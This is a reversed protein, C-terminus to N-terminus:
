GLQLLQRVEEISRCEGGLHIVAHCNPCVPRLDAVPHPEYEEGIESLPTVHHVHIFGEALPGYVARFNFGCVMCTPGYHDICLRRAIPNREYANITVQCAAGEVLNGSSPLEEALPVVPGAQGRLIAEEVYHPRQPASDEAIGTPRPVQKLGAIYFVSKFDAYDIKDAARWTAPRHVAEALLAARDVEDSRKVDRLEGRYYRDEGTIKILITTPFSFKKKNVAVRDLWIIYVHANCVDLADAFKGNKENYSVFVGL